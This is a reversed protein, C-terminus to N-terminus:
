QPMSPMDLQSREQIDLLKVYSISDSNIEKLAIVAENDKLEFPFKEINPAENQAEKKSDLDMILDQRNNFDTRFRSVMMMRDDATYNVTKNVSNRFYIAVVEKGSTVKTPFYLTIGSGSGPAGGNWAQAYAQQSVPFDASTYTESMKQAGCSSITLALLIYIAKM